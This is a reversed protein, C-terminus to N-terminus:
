DYISKLGCFEPIDSQIIENWLPYLNKDEDDKKLEEMPLNFERNLYKLYGGIIIKVNPTNACENYKGLLHKLIDYKYIKAIEPNQNGIFLPEAYAVVYNKWLVDSPIESYSNSLTGETGRKRKDWLYLADRVFVFKNIYTYLATTYGIDDYCRLLEDFKVKRAIETKVIKNWVACFNINSQASSRADMIEKFSEMIITPQNSEKALVYDNNEYENCILCQSIAVDAGNKVAEKYLKEYMYPHVIDDSDLFALWEGQAIKEGNNRAICVGKNEQHIVKIFDFNDAYWNCVDTTEKGSGDNVLIIEYDTFTSSLVTQITRPLFNACNYVPIIISLTTKKPSVTTLKETSTPESVGELVFGDNTKRYGEVYYKGSKYDGLVIWDETEAVLNENEDYLSYWDFIKESKFTLSIEDNASIIPIIAIKELKDTNKQPKIVNTTDITYFKKNQKVVYSVRYGIYKKNKTFSYSCNKVRGLPIYTFIETIGEILYEDATYSKNWGLIINDYDESLIKLEQM